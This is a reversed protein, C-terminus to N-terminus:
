LISTVLATLSEATLGESSTLSYWMGDRQWSAHLIVDEQDGLVSVTSAGCTLSSEWPFEGSVEGPAEQETSTRYVLKDEGCSYTVQAITQAVLAYEEVEYGTPLAQPTQVLFDAAGQLSELTDYQIVPNVVQVGSSNPSPEAVQSGFALLASSLLLVVAVILLKESRFYVELGTPEKM